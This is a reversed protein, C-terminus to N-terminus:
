IQFVLIFICSLTLNSKGDGFDEPLEQERYLDEPEPKRYRGGFQNEEETVGDARAPAAQLPLDLCRGIRTHLLLYSSKPLSFTPPVAPRSPSSPIADSLLEPHSKYAALASSHWHSVQEGHIAVNHGPLLNRADAQQPPPAPVVRRQRRTRRPPLPTTSTPVRCPAARHPASHCPTLSSPPNQAAGEVAQVQRGSDGGRTRKGNWRWMANRRAAHVERVREERGHDERDGCAGGPWRAGGQRRAERGAPAGGNGADALYGEDATGAAVVQGGRSAGLRRAVALTPGGGTWRQPWGAGARRQQEARAYAAAASSAYGGSLRLAGGEEGLGGHTRGIALATPLLVTCIWGHPRRIRDVPGLPVAPADM